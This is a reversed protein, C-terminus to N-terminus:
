ARTATKEMSQSSSNRMAEPVAEKGSAKSFFYTWAVCPSGRSLQPYSKQVEARRLLKSRPDTKAM